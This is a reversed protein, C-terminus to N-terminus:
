CHRFIDILTFDNMFNEFFFLLYHPVYQFVRGCVSNWEELILKSFYFSFKHYPNSMNLTITDINTKIYCIEENNSTCIFAGM